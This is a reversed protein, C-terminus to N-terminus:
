YQNTMHKQMDELRQKPDCFEIEELVLRKPDLTEGDELM